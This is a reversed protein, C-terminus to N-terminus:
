DILYLQATALWLATLFHAAIDKVIKEVREPAKLFVAMKASKKNLADAEEDTLAAGQKFDEFTQDFGCSETSYRLPLIGM